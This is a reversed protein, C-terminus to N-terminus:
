RGINDAMKGVITNIAQLGAGASKYYEEFIFLYSRVKESQTNNTSEASTIAATLHNQIVGSNSATDTSHVNYNDLAWKKCDKYSLGGTPIDALVTKLNALLTTPDPQGNALTPTSDQLAPILTNKIIDRVNQLKDRFDSFGDASESSFAFEPDIPTGFYASAADTYDGMYAEPDSGGKYDFGFASKSKVTVNNHLDQLTNLTNLSQVSLHLASSLAELNYGIMKNAERVYVLQFYGTLNHSDMEDIQSQSFSSPAVTNDNSM